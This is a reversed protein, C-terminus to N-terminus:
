KAQFRSSSLDWHFGFVDHSSFQFCQRAEVDVLDHGV